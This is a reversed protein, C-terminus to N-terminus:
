RFGSAGEKQVHSLHSHLVVTARNICPKSNNIEIQLLYQPFIFQRYFIFENERIFMKWIVYTKIEGHIIKLSNM